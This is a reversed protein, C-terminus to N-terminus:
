FRRLGSRMAREQGEEEKTKPQLKWLERVVERLDKGDGSSIAEQGRALLKEAAEKSQWAQDPGRMSEFLERWYWDQALLVRFRLADFAEQVRQIAREDAKDLGRELQKELMQLEKKELSSGFREVVERAMKRSAAIAEMAVSPAGVGAGRELQNLKSQVNRASEVVRRSQDPDPNSTASTRTAEHDLEDLERKLREVEEAQKEDGAQAQTQEVRSLRERYEGVQDVVASSLEAYDKEEEQAVYLKNSFHQNLHPIFAEITILRSADIKITVEVESGEPVARRCDAAAIKVNGVWVNAEPERLDEGEWLKIALASEPDSPKVTRDARYRITREAPLPTGRKFVPDLEKGGRKSVEVGITHPLPPASIVLGHRISLEGPEVDVLTGAADRAYLFFRTTKGEQLMVPLEFTGASLAFWGSSWYGGEADLKLETIGADGELRGAVPASTKASVPDFALVVKPKGAPAEAAPVPSAPAVAAPAPSVKAPELEIGGAYVAAGRAVVTMPDLSHDIRAELRGALASRILPMQTPGGVLLVRDLDRGRIRAGELAEEALRVARDVLPEVERELEARTVTLELEIPAGDADDGLDVLSVVVQEQTSLDIKTEEAKLVLRRLLRQHGAPDKAPDPLAFTRALPELFRHEALRRDIDKGGLLNDGRHELVTLRGDKTSVVAIDLTGGGLDFIMWRQDRAGPAVGYAIAAAIPEQLLPAQALGAAACARGTADCQLAGFAAPVTVVAARIDAGDARRVDEKLAKLVEASLQEATLTKGAAPFTKDGKQGMWRKFEQAINESDDAIANYARKGVVVRGNKLLRVVSPTVSMQDNNQYVRIAEGDARAICSNTTGLDIGYAVTGAM